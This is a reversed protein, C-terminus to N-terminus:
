DVFNLNEIVKDAAFLAAGVAAAESNLESIVIGPVDESLTQKLIKVAEPLFLDSYQIFDGFLIVTEPNLLSIANNLAFGLAYGINEFIRVAEEDKHRALGAIEECRKHTKDYEHYEGSVSEERMIDKLFVWKDTNKVPVANTGIECTRGRNGMYMRGNLMAAIGVGHDIRLLIANETNKGNLAGFSRETYLLCDPDHLMVTDLGFRKNLEDCVPINEWGKVAPISVSIGNETDVEGQMALAISAINKSKNDSIAKEILSYLNALAHDKDKEKLGTEYKKVVRGKLDCVVALIGASNFDIGIIYNDNINIDLEEPKRGVYTEQKGSTMIYKESILLATVSSINGWSFGTAAQLERKSLPGNRRIESLVRKINEQRLQTNVKM